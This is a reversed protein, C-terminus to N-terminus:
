SGDSEWIHIGPVKALVQRMTNNVINGNVNNVVVFANRKGAFIHTGVIEPSQVIDHRTDRGVVTVDPLFERPTLTDTGITNRPQQAKVTVSALLAISIFTFKRM